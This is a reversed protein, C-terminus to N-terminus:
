LIEGEFPIARRLRMVMICSLRFDTSAPDDRPFTTSILHMPKGLVVRGFEETSALLLLLGGTEVPRSFPLSFVWSTPIIDGCPLVLLFDRYEWIDDAM